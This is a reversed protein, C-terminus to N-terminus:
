ATLRSGQSAKKAAKCALNLTLTQLVLFVEIVETRLM